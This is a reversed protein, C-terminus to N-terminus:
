CERLHKKSHNEHQELRFDAVFCYSCISIIPIMDNSDDNMTYLSMFSFTHATPVNLTISVGAAITM